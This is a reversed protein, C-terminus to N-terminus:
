LEFAGSFNNASVCDRPNLPLIRYTTACALEPKPRSLQSSVLLHTSPEMQQSVYLFSENKLCDTTTGNSM